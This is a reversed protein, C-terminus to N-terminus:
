RRYRRITSVVMVARAPAAELYNAAALGSDNPPHIGVRRPPDLDALAGRVAELGRMVDAPMSGGNTDCLVVWSAGARAAATCVELAYESDRAFGDFFHEADFILERGLGGGYAISEEVM